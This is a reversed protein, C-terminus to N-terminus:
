AQLPEPAPDRSTLPQSSRMQILLLVSAFAAYACWVSTVAEYRVAAALTVGVVNAIGFWFLYRRTSLLPPGCTALLYTATIVAGIHFDTDYVMAHDAPHAGATHTLLTQAFWAATGIGAILPVIMARRRAGDPECLMVAAPVFVPLLVQAIALYLLIAVQEVGASVRGDTGLWVFAEIAQHAAFIAPLAALPLSRRDPAARLTAVALPTLIVAAAVDAEFSFCM